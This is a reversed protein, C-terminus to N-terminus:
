IIPKAIAGAIARFWVADFAFVEVLHVGVMGTGVFAYVWHVRRERVFDVLAALVILSDALLLSYIFVPNEIPPFYHRFRFWAPGLSAVLALLMLRKHADSRQRLLFASVILASFVVMEMMIVLLERSALDTDGSAATRQSAITAVVLTSLVVAAVLGGGIWGMRKHVRLNRQHVWVSQTVFFCIWGFLAAAHVYIAVPASFTGEILPLFFTKGFGIVAVAVGIAGSWLFLRSRQTRGVRRHM